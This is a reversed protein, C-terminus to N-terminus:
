FETPRVVEMLPSPLVPEKYDLINPLDEYPQTNTVRIFYLELDSRSLSENDVGGTKKISHWHNFLRLRNYRLNTGAM